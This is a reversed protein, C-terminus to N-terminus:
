PRAPARHCRFHPFTPCLHPSPDVPDFLHPKVTTFRGSQTNFAGAYRYEDGSSLRLSPTQMAPVPVFVKPKDWTTEKTLPNHYYNKQSAADFYELWVDAAAAPDSARVVSATSTAKELTMSSSPTTTIARVPQQLPQATNCADIRDLVSSLAAVTSLVPNAESMDQAETASNLLIVYSCAMQYVAANNWKAEASSVNPLHAPVAIHM